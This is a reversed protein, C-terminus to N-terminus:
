YRRYHYYYRHHRRDYVRYRYYHRRHEPVYVRVVPRHHRVARHAVHVIQHTRHRLHDIPGEQARAVGVGALLMLTTLTAFISVRLSRFTMDTVEEANRRASSYPSRAHPWHRRRRRKASTTSAYARPRHRPETWM